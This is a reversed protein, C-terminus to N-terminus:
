LDNAILELLLYHNTEDEFFNDEVIKIQETQSAKGVTMKFGLDKDVSTIDRLSKKNTAATIQTNSKRKSM